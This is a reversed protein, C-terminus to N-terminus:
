CQIASAVDHGDVVVSVLMWFEVLLRRLKTGVIESMAANDFVVDVRGVTEDNLAFGVSLLVIDFLDCGTSEKLLQVPIPYPGAISEDFDVAFGALFKHTQPIDVINQFLLKLDGNM